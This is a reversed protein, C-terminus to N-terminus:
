TTIKTNVNQPLWGEHRYWNLTEDLGQAFGTPSKLPWGEGRAVWDAHYLENIKERSIMSPKGRLKAIAEAFFAVSYPIFKPLFVTAIGKHEVSAAVRALEKWDHGRTSGDGLELIGTKKSAAAEAMIRALDGVHILSFRADGRGPLVAISQTLAKLLPLTAKDGPGYVAPPRLIVVSLNGAWKGLVAEGALKSAGYGSLQPERASLSSVHVFRKVGNRSAAQAIAKTGEENVLFYDQRKVASISGALHIVVSSGETLADLAAINQLDGSVLRVASPLEAKARDRVLATVSHKQALLVAVVKRGVFGTAGTLAINLPM